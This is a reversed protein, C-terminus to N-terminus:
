HRLCLVHNVKREEFVSILDPGQDSEFTFKELNIDFQKSFYDFHRNYLSKTESLGFSFALPIGTNKITAMLISCVYFPLVKWTTDLLLGNIKESFQTLISQAYPTVYIGGTIIFYEADEHIFKILKRRKFYTKELDISLYGCIKDKLSELSNISDKKHHVYFSIYEHLIFTDFIFPLGVIKMKKAFYTFILSFDSPACFAISRHFYFANTATNISQFLLEHRIHEQWVPQTRFKFWVRM